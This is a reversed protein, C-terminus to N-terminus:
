YRHRDEEIKYIPHQWLTVHHATHLDGGLIRVLLGWSELASCTFKVVSGGPQGWEFKNKFLNGHKQCSCMFLIKSM